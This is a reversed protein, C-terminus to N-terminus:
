VGFLEPLESIDAIDADPEFEAGEPSYMRFQGQRVRVTMMSLARAPKIDNDPRDGVMVAREPKCGAKELAALFISPDPKEAGFEASSVIVSLHRDLGFRALREAAGPLQNAIVGLKYKTALRDLVAGACPYPKELEGTYPVFHAGIRRCVRSFPAKGSAGIEYAMKEFEEPTIKEGGNSAVEDIAIRARRRHEDGEDVLTFGMDFFIWEANKLDM